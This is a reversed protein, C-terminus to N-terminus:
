NSITLVDLRLRCSEGADTGVWVLLSGNGVSSLVVAPVSGSLGPGRHYWTGDPTRMLLERACGGVPRLEVGLGIMGALSIELTPSVPFGAETAHAVTAQPCAALPAGGPAFIRLMRGRRLNVGSERLITAASAEPNPCAMAGHGAGLALAFALICSLRAIASM